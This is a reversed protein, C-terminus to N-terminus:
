GPPCGGWNALLELFDTIGVTGNGDFDPPGGPNTGWAALLELFDTIGVNGDCDLDWPCSAPFEYSGMDVIPCEGNGTDTTALDNAFRPNGDLDETVGAPVATNDAADIAPSGSQLRYDDNAPDVFLPDVDINGPGWNLTFGGQVFVDAEGGQVDSYSVTVKLPSTGTLSIQRGQPATNGWLICNILWAHGPPNPFDAGASFGGGSLASNGVFTCNIITPSSAYGARIAGGRRTPASNGVFLSNTILPNCNNYNGVAGGNHGNTVNGIFVCRDITPSSNTNNAVAGGNGFQATNNTFTCGSIIPSSNPANLMVGGDGIAFNDRFECDTFTPSSTNNRLAGGNSEVARNDAFVCSEFTPDSVSNFVAGGAVRTSNGVMSCNRITPSGILNVIAGGRRHELPESDPADANGATVTFGDLEATSSTGSGILVSYSNEANNDFTGPGDNDFLDGSLVTVYTDILREDPDPAGIGAYGGLIALGDLLQFTATRDGTGAPSIEDRDPWYVGQAVHIANINGDSTAEALADQLFRYATAWSTGDGGAPADDDVFVVNGASAASALVLVLGSVVGLKQNTDM